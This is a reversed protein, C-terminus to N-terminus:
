RLTIPTPRPGPAPANSQDPAANLSFAFPPNTCSIVTKNAREIRITWQYKTMLGAYPWQLLDIPWTQDRTTGIATPSSGDPWVLVSFVEDPKLQYDTRWRLITNRASFSKGDPPDFLAPPPICAVPVVTPTPTPTLTPIVTALAIFVTIATPASACDRYRGDVGAIRVKWYFTASTGAYKWSQLNVTLTEVTTRALRVQTNATTGDLDSPNPSVLVDYFEGPALAGSDQWELALTTVPAPKGRYPDLLRPAPACAPPIIISPPTVTITPTIPISTPPNYSLPRSLATPTSSPLAAALAKLLGPPPQLGNCTFSLIAGVIVICCIVLIARVCGLREQEEKYQAYEGPTMSPDSGTGM